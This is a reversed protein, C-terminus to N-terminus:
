AGGEGSHGGSTAGICPLPLGYKCPTIFMHCSNPIFGVMWPSESLPYIIIGISSSECSGTRLIWLWAWAYTYMSVCGCVFVYVCRFYDWFLSLTFTLSTLLVWLNICLMVHASGSIFYMWHYWNPGSFFSSGSFDSVNEATKGESGLAWRVWWCQCYSHFLLIASHM